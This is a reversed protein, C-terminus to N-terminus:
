AKTEEAWVQSRATVKEGSRVAQDILLSLYEDQAAEALSYFGGGEALYTEMGKLCSAVAIEDDSLRAPAFPNRYIWEEGALLGKFYFGELNGNEGATVRRISLELPTRFDALYKVEANQIEGRSGRLLVRQFRAWSRHQDKAFDYLGLKGKFELFAFHQEADLISEKEGLGRRGPGEVLPSTFAFGRITPNEFGVGLAKRLISVAHYGHSFSVRVQDIEGLKGSAALALRAAHLPQLHYQEAIQIKAGRTRTYLDALRELDVAPPTEALVAAGLGALTQIIEPAKEKSVAVVVFRPATKELLEEASRFIRVGWTRELEAAKEEDRTVLGCVEFLWPVERAVRLYTEARWGSGYLGFTIKGKREASISTM